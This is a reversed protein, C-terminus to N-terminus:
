RQRAAVTTGSPDAVPKIAAWAFTLSLGVDPTNEFNRINETLAAGYILRGRRSRLGISAEFKAATIDDITSNRVSSSGAYVQGVFNTQETVAIEYAVIATPVLQRELRVGFVQGDTSVVSGILYVAQRRYKGQLAAQVGYDNSGSSLFMREGSWAIKAEGSLVLNWRSLGFPIAQRVGIVPDGIGSDVPAELLALRSGDIAVVAQFHDRAVRDRGDSGLAFTDHFGEIAGDMFGGSFDYAPITMYVSTAPRLRYHVTAELLGFEGDVYYADSGLALIADADTGTLPGSGARAGLYDRVNQSMVFTNSFSLNTEIAWSGAGAAVAHAPLMDLRLLNFPTMDRVRLPGLMGSDARAEGASLALGLGLAAGFWAAGSRTRGTMGAGTIVVRAM